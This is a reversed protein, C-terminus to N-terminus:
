RQIWDSGDLCASLETLVKVNKAGNKYLDFVGDVLGNERFDVNGHFHLLDAVAATEFFDGQCHNCFVRLVEGDGEASSEQADIDQM